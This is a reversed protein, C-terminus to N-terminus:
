GVSDEADWDEPEALSSDHDEEWPDDDHAADPVFPTDIEPALEGPDSDDVEDGYLIVIEPDVGNQAESDPAPLISDIPVYPRLTDRVASLSIIQATELLRLGIVLVILLIVIAFLAKLFGLIHHGMSGRDDVDDDDDDFDYDDDEDDDYDDNGYEDDYDDYVREDRQGLRPASRRMEPEEVEYEDFLPQPARQPQEGRARVPRFEQTPEDVVHMDDFAPEAYQPKAQPYKKTSTSASAGGAAAERAKRERRSMTMGDNTSYGLMDDYKGKNNNAQEGAMHDVGEDNLKQNKNDPAGYTREIEKTLALEAAAAKNARRSLPKVPIIDDEGEVDMTFVPDIEHKVPESEFNEEFSKEFSQHFSERVVKQSRNAERRRKHALEYEDLDEDALPGFGVKALLRTWATEGDGEEADEEPDEAGVFRLRKEQEEEEEPEESERDKKQSIVGALKKARNFMDMLPNQIDPADPDDYEAMDPDYDYEAPEPAEYLSERAPPPAAARLSPAPRAAEKEPEPPDTNKRQANYRNIYDRYDMQLRPNSGDSLNKRAM